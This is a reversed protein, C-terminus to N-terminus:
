TSLVLPSISLAEVLVQSEPSEWEGHLARVSKSVGHWTLRSKNVSPVKRISRDMSVGCYKNKAENSYVIVGRPYYGSSGSISTFWSFNELRVVRRHCDDRGLGYNNFWKSWLVNRAELTLFSIASEKQSLHKSVTYTSHSYPYLHALEVDRQTFPTNQSTSTESNTCSTVREVIGFTAFVLPQAQQILTPFALPIMEYLEIPVGPFRINFMRFHGTSIWYPESWLITSTNWSWKTVSDDKRHQRADSPQTKCLPSSTRQLPQRMNSWM